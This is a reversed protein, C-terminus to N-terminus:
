TAIAARRAGYISRGDDYKRERMGANAGSAALGFNNGSINTNEICLVARRRGFYQGHHSTVMTRLFLIEM